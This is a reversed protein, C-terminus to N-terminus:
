ADIRYVRAATARFLADQEAASMDGTLRKFANWLTGYGYSVGDVPFNSEFMCRAPSFAEVAHRVYPRYADALERSCPPTDRRDWGYGAVAMGLGGLKLIINPRKAAAAIGAEWEALADQRRQAYRGIRIPTALHDVVLTLGPFADALSLIRDIQTHLCWTEFILGMRELWGLADRLAPAALAGQHETGVYPEDPDSSTVYRIGRFRDPSAAVHAELVGAVSDGALLEAFGMIAAGLRIAGPGRADAARLAADVTETEGVCRLAEPGDVRYGMRCEIFVTATIRHGSAAMMAAMDQPLARGYALAAPGDGWFHHHADIVPLEPRIPAEAAARQWAPMMPM